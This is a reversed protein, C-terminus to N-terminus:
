TVMASIPTAPPAATDATPTALIGVDAFFVGDLGVRKMTNLADAPTEVTPEHENSSTNLLIPVGSIAGLARRGPEAAGSFRGLIKGRQLLALAQRVNIGAMQVRPSHCAGVVALRSYEMAM